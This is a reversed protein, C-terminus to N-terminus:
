NTPRLAKVSRCYTVARLRDAKPGVLDANRDDHQGWTAAKVTDIWSNAFVSAQICASLAVLQPINHRDALRWKYSARDRHRSETMFARLLIEYGIDPTWGSQDPKASRPRNFFWDSRDDCQLYLYEYPHSTTFAPAYSEFAELSAYLEGAIAGRHAEPYTNLIQYSLKAAVFAPPGVLLASLSIGGYVLVRRVRSRLM